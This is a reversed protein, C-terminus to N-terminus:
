EIPIFNIGTRMINVLRFHVELTYFLLMSGGTAEGEGDHRYSGGGNKTPSPLGESLPPSLINDKGGM